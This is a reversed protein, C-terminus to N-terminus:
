AGPVGDARRSRPDMGARAEYRAARLKLLNNLVPAPILRKLGRHLGLSLYARGILTMPVYYRPFDFREFGHRRKFETLSNDRKGPYEYQGYNFYRVGREACRKIAHGLLANAPRNRFHSEKTIVYMTKAIDGVYVLKLFGVLEDGVFAGLFDSRDVYAGIDKKIEDASKGYHWFPRGQRVPTEDYLSKVHMALEDDFSCCKVEVGERRSRRLNEKVDKKAVTSLWQDFPQVELVALNDMEFPYPFRAKSQTLRDAFEFVDPKAPWQKLHEIVPPPDDVIGNTTYFEDFIRARRVFGETLVITRGMVETCPTVRRKGKVSIELSNVNNV